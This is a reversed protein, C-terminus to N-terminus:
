GRGQLEDKYEECTQIEEVGPTAEKSAPPSTKSKEKSAEPLDNSIFEDKVPPSLVTTPKTPIDHQVAEIVTPKEVFVASTEASLNQSLVEEANIVAANATPIQQQLQVQQVPVPQMAAQSVPQVLPIAQHQSAPQQTLPVSQQNSNQLQLPQSSPQQQAMYNTQYIPQQQTQPISHQQLSNMSQQNIVHPMQSRVQQQPPVRIPHISNPQQPNFIQPPTAQRFPPPPVNVNFPLDTSTAPAPPQQIIAPRM